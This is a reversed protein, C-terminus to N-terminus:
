RSVGYMENESPFSQDKVDDAYQKVASDITEMLNAYRRVFKPTRPFMGLMDDTVLIQGDCETSAGIGITPVPVAHTVEGAIHSVVGELVIAFCGAAAMQKANQVLERKSEDTKGAVRYGGDVNLYQPRLGIHGVVPIGREVLFEVTQAAFKNYEIKVAQCGTEQMLRLASRYAVQPSEECSGFPLDVVVLAKQSGRMVAKGHMIMMDLTVATTDKMGHLVMGVSDGVLLLDCHRDLIEAVPTTYATLTVLKRQGKAAIIDRITNRKIEAMKSM